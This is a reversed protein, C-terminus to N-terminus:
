CRWRHVTDGDTTLWTGDGLPVPMTSVTTPYHVEALVSLDTASLLFHRSVDSWPEEGAAALVRAHDLFGAQGMFLLGDPLVDSADVTVPAAKDSTYRSLLEGGVSSTLFDGHTLSGTFPEDFTGVTELELTRRHDHLSVLLAYAEEQGQAANLFVKEAGPSPAQQFEYIGYSTPLTAQAVLEGSALDLAVCGEQWQRGPADLPVAALLYRGAPDPCCAGHSGQPWSPHPFSWRPRGDQDYVTVAERMSVALGDGPVPSCYSRGEGLAHAPLTLQADFVSGPESSLRGLRVEALDRAVTWTHGERVLWQDLKGASAALGALVDTALLAASAPAYKM